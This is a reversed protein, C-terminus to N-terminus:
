EGWGPVTGWRCSHPHPVPRKPTWEVLSAVLAPRIQALCRLVSATRMINCIGDPVSTQTDGKTSARIYDAISESGSLGKEWLALVLTM